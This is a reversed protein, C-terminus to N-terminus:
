VPYYAWAHGRRERRVLGLARLKELRNNIATVGVGPFQPLLDSATRGPSRRLARMTAQIMADMPSMGTGKCKPCKVRDIM